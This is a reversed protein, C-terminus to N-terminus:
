RSIIDQSQRKRLEIKAEKLMKSQKKYMTAANQLMRDSNEIEEKLEIKERDLEDLLVDKESIQQTYSDIDAEFQEIRKQSVALTNNL